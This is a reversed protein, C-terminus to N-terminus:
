ISAKLARNALNCATAPDACSAGEDLYSNFYRLAHDLNDITESDLIKLLAQLVAVVSLVLGEDALKIPEEFVLDPENSGPPVILAAYVTEGDAIEGTDLLTVKDQVDAYRILDSGPWVGENVILTLMARLTTAMEYGHSEQKPFRALIHSLYHLALRVNDKKPAKIPFDVAFQWSGDNARRADIKLGAILKITKGQTLREFLNM